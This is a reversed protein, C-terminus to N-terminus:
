ASAGECVPCAATKGPDHNDGVNLRTECTPCFTGVALPNTGGCEYCEAVPGAHQEGDLSWHSTPRGHIWTARPTTFDTTM